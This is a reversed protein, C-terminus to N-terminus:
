SIVPPSGNEFGFVGIFPNTSSFEMM